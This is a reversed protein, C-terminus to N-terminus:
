YSPTQRLEAEIQAARERNRADQRKGALELSATNRMDGCNVFEALDALKAEVAEPGQAKIDAIYAEFKNLDVPECVLKGAVDTAMIFDIGDVKGLKASM